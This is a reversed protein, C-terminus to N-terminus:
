WSEPLSAGAAAANNPVAEAASSLKRGALRILFMVPGRLTPITSFIRSREPMSLPNSREMVELTMLSVTPSPTVSPICSPMLSAASRNIFSWGSAKPWFSQSRMMSDATCPPRPPPTIPPTPPPTSRYLSPAWSLCRRASMRSCRAARSAAVCLRCFRPPCNSSPSTSCGGAPAGRGVGGM